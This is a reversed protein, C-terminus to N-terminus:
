APGRELERYGDPTIILNSSLMLTPQDVVLERGDISVVYGDERKKAEGVKDVVDPAVQAVLGRDVLGDALAVCRHYDYSVEGSLYRKLEPFIRWPAATAMVFQGVGGPTFACSGDGAFDVRVNRGDTVHRADFELGHFYFRWQGDPTEEIAELNPDRFGNGLIWYDFPSRGLAATVLEVIEAQRVGLERAARLFEFQFDTM